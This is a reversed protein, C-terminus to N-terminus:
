NFHEYGYSDLNITVNNSDVVQIGQQAVVEGICSIDTQTNKILANMKERDKEAVTFVLEYDDGGALAYQRAKEINDIAPLPIKDMYLRMGCESADTIHKADALLGDSVDICATAIGVLSQGLAIRATPKNLRNICHERAKDHITKDLVCALGYAAEGTCGSLYVKDGAKAGSRTIASNTKIHGALTISISMPGRTTDGGILDLKYQASLDALGKCFEKLWQENLEPLSINLTFWQPIAGMAAIDSLNVALAKYAIDYASTNVPFHINENLTDTCIVLEKGPPLSVIAADDGIALSIAENQKTNTIRSFYHQILNFELLPM